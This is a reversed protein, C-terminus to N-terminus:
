YALKCFTMTDDPKKILFLYVGRNLISIERLSFIYEHQGALVEVPLVKGVLRGGLDFLRCEGVGAVDSSVSIRFVDRVPNPFISTLENQEQVQISASPCKYVAKWGSRTSTYDSIFHLTFSNATFQIPAPLDSGTFAGMLISQISNGDFLYLTDHGAELDFSYFELIIQEGEEITITQSYNEGSYYNFAPGGSDYLTDSCVIIECNTFKDRLLDWLEPYGNDYGLAWIGIGALNYRKIWDYKMGLSYANDAFCHHWDNINYIYYPSLSNPEFHLNEPSYTSANNRIARYTL